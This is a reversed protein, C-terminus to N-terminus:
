CCQPDPGAYWSQITRGARIGASGIAAFLRDVWGAGGDRQSARAASQLRWQEAERMRKEIWFKSEVDMLEPEM